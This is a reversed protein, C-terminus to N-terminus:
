KCILAICMVITLSIIVLECFDIELNKGIKM